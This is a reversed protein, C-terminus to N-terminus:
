LHMLVADALLSVSALSRSCLVWRLRARDQLCLYLEQRKRECEWLPLPTSSDVDDLYEIIRCRLIFLTM